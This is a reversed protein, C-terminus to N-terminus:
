NGLVEDDCEDALEGSQASVLAAVKHTLYEHVDDADQGDQVRATLSCDVRKSEYNGMNITYGASVSVETVNVDAKDLM